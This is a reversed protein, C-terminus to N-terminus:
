WKVIIIYLLGSLMAFKALRSLHSYDKKVDARRLKWLIYIVPLAAVGNFLIFQIYQARRACEFSFREIFFLLVLGASFALAKGTTSGWVIPATRGGNVRDGEVDELDKVIERLLTSFFAFIVYGIFVAEVFNAQSPSLTRLLHFNVREAYWVVGAVFACFFAVIANGILATKKFYKSYAWLLAVAGPYILFQVYDRIYWSLYLSIFAGAAVSCFYLNWSANISLHKDVIQKQPKNVADIETDEIDNVIYGGAAILVTSAVLLSFQLLPLVPVLGASQLAPVLIIYQLLFQTLAAILLNPFRILRLLYLM